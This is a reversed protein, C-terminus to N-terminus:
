RRNEDNAESKFVNGMAEAGRTLVPRLEKRYVKETVVTSSHGVLRSIDEIRVGADSVAPLRQPTARSPKNTWLPRYFPL